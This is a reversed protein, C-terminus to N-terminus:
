NKIVKYAKTNLGKLRIFYIGNPLSSMDIKTEEASNILRGDTSYLDAGEYNAGSVDITVISSTPNPYISVSVEENVISPVELEADVSTSFIPRIMVSGDFNSTSWNVGNNISYYTKTKNDLNRDLGINLREADFQKWGVFFTQGVAVKMTDKFYYTVFGNQDTSYIPQRPFFSEDQYLVSGPIGGNDDWVTLLFLNNSVDNVSPVFHMNMGILSDSEYATYKIALRAQAGTPGYAAEASGDDYSYYNSFKQTAVTSDNGPFNPFQASATALLDFEVQTGLKTIDYVYGGSLDHESYYTTRPGYNIAGGSLDQAILTYNGEASGGYSIEISGNQNNETLNSGNHVAIQAVDNMKGISNNKFHDWPVSTYTKLLSGITYSFAFDKFLTDQYGSLPRLHVYDIHFHDLSGSLAGYNKFRFQFGKKFYKADEVLITASKFPETAGGNVSWVRFWQDLDKAYFELVLSDGDEPIDGFGQKQYLFSFYVSDGANLPAMDLPKSTLLDAYNTITSGIAYPFGNEDLGDFTVVGLSRPEFGYRYNHYANADLWYANADNLPVFFQTASDQYFEPGVIWVTDPIDTAGITDYIYFPPYMSTPTYVVPYTSLDGVKVISDDFNQDIFTATNLDYVRRFTQQGTASFDNSIPLSTINNLLQYKKDSTVGFDTYDANYQQFHNKSFEDFFPLSLTDSIYIFTSDFSSGSKLLNLSKAGNLSSNSTLPGIEEGQSFVSTFVSIFAITTLLFRMLQDNILWM